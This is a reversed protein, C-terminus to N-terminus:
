RRSNRRGEGHCVVRSCSRGRRRELVKTLGMEASSAAAPDSGLEPFPATVSVSRRAQSEHWGDDGGDVMPAGTDTGERGEYSRWKKGSSDNKGGGSSVMPGDGVIAKRSSVQLWAKLITLGRGGQSVQTALREIDDFGRLRAQVIASGRGFVQLWTKMVM